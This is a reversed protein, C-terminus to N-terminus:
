IATPRPGVTQYTVKAAGNGALNVGEASRVSWAATPATAHGPHEYLKSLEDILGSQVNESGTGDAGAM